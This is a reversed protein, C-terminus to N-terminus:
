PAALVMTWYPTGNPGSASAVGIETFAGNLINERHGQSGMWGAMVAACDGYGYAVNEGWTSYSYGQAGIRQGANSGDSGKHSMTGRNAQDASHGAAAANLAGNSSLPALGAASREANVEGMCLGASSPASPPPSSPPPPPQCARLLAGGPLVFAASFAYALFRNSKM